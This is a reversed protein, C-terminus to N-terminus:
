FQLGSLEAKGRIGLKSYVKNLTNRVTAASITLHRAIERTSLRERALLAIERERPTLPSAGSLAARVAAAGAAFRRGLAKIRELAAPDARCLAPDDLVASLPGYYEAVPLYAQDPLACALAQGTRERAMARSGSQEHFVAEELYGYLRPMLHHMADSEQGFAEAAGCLEEPAHLRMWRLTIIHAFPVSVPYLTQRVSDSRLLWCPIKEEMGLLAYLFGLATESATVCGFERGEFAHREIAGAAASFAAGDGRLVALRALVTLACFYVSDQGREAAIAKAQRAAARAGDEAGSLLLAEAYMAEAAGAGKGGSLLAYRPLGRELLRASEMLTGRERWFMYAVSPVGFTWSDNTLYFDRPDDLLGCAATHHRSMEAIDNFASFSAALELAAAATRRAGENPAADRLEALRSLATRALARKGNLGAKIAAGLLLSWRPALLEPPCRALLAELQEARTRVLEALQQSTLPIALAAGDDGARMAFRMAEITRGRLLCAKGARTWLLRRFAEPRALLKAGLYERLLSHLTYEDGVRRVFANKRVMEWLAEPLEGGGLMVAAQAETFTNLLSLGLFFRRERESRRRWFAQEMLENMGVSEDLAGGSLFHALHLRLAAVWGETSAALQAAQEPELEAGWLRFLKRVDAAGFCFAGQEIQHVRPSSVSLAEGTHIPQTLVVLHLRGCRHAALADLLRFPAPFASLQFNDIVLVTERACSFSDMLLAIRGLSDLGPQDLKSLLGATRRDGFALLACIGEWMREPPEGFCTYWHCAWEEPLHELYNSVATTKGYGSGATILTLPRESIATLAGALRPPFHTKRPQKPKM